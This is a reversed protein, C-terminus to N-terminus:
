LNHLYVAVELLRMHTIHFASQKNVCVKRETPLTCCCHTSTSRQRGGVKETSHLREEAEGKREGKGEKEGEGEVEGKGEREREGKKTGVGEGM